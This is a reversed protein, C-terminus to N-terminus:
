LAMTFDPTQGSSVEVKAVIVTSGTDTPPVTVASAVTHEPDLLPVKVRAPWVPVMEPHSLEISLKEVLVAIALTVLEWAYLLM